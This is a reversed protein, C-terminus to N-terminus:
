GRLIKDLTLQFKSNVLAKRETIGFKLMKM